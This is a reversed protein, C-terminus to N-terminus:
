NRKTRSRQKGREIRALEEARESKKVREPVLNELMRWAGEESRAGTAHPHKTLVKMGLYDSEKWGRQELDKRMEDSLVHMPAFGREDYEALRRAYKRPSILCDEYNKLDFTVKGRKFGKKLLVGIAFKSLRKLPLYDNQLGRKQAYESPM